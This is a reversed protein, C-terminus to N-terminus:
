MKMRIPTKVKTLIDKLVINLLLKFGQQSLFAANAMSNKGYIICNCSKSKAREYLRTFNSFPEDCVM